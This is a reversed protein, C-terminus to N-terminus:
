DPNLLSLPRFFYDSEGNLYQLTLEISKDMKIPYDDIVTHITHISNFTSSINLSNSYMKVKIEASFSFTVEASTFSLNCGDQLSGTWEVARINALDASLNWGSQLDSNSVKICENLDCIQSAATTVLFLFFYLM